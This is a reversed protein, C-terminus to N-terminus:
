AAPGGSEVPAAPWEGRQLKELWLAGLMTKVDTVEGGRVKDLLTALPMTLVDLFEGEDLRREGAALGTALYIEIGEDSYGIANHLVGLHVWRAARYGTEERLERIACDLPPEGPDIKGAPFELFARHLPYRWQRELVVQGDDTVPLIMVAGPHHIYERTAEKGDPLRVRDRLVKLFVGAFVQEGTLPVERLHSDDNPGEPGQMSNM